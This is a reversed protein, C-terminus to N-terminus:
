RSAEMEERSSTSSTGSVGSTGDTGVKRGAGATPMRGHVIWHRDSVVEIALGELGTAELRAEIEDIRYAALLLAHFDRQLVPPEGAAYRSVLDSAEAPSAPRLLDMVFLQAGAAAYARAQEAEDMLEPEPVREM